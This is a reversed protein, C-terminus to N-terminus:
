SPKTPWTINKVGVPTSADLQPSAGSPLDRLSQRYTTWASKISNPVDAGQTWDCESLLRDREERLLRMPELGRLETMKNNVETETPKTQISDHWVIGDYTEGYLVWQAGPKLAQLADGINM